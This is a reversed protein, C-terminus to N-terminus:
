TCAWCVGALWAHYFQLRCTLLSDVHFHLVLWRSTDEVYFVDIHVSHNHFSGCQWGRTEDRLLRSNESGSINSSVECVSPKYGLVM